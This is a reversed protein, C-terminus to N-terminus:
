QNSLYYNKYQLVYNTYSNLACVTAEFIYGVMKNGMKDITKAVYSYQGCVGCAKPCARRAESSYADENVCIRRYLYKSVDEIIEIVSCNIM